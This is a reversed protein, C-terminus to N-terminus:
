NMYIIETYKLKMRRLNNIRRRANRAFSYLRPNENLYDINDWVIQDVESTTKAEMFEVILTTM